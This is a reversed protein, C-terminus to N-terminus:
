KKPPLPTTTGTTALPPPPTEPAKPPMVTAAPPPSSSVLGASPTLNKSIQDLIRASVLDDGGFGIRVSVRTMAGDAPVSSPVINYYVTVNYGDATKSTMYATGTDTKERLVPFNLEGLAKRGAQITDGLMAPYDRSLAGQHYVYGAAAGGAVGGLIALACGTQLLLAVAVASLALRRWTSKTSHM